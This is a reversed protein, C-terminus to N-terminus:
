CMTYCDFCDRAYEDIQDIANCTLFAEGRETWWYLLVKGETTDVYVNPGGYTIMIRAGEYDFGGGRCPSVTFKIDFYEDFYDYITIEEAEMRELYEELVSPDVRAADIEDGEPTKYMDGSCIKDIEDAIRECYENHEEMTGNPLLKNNMM